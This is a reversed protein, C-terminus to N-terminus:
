TINDEHVSANHKLIIWEIMRKEKGGQGFVSGSNYLWTKERETYIHTYIYACMHM